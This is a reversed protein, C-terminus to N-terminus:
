INSKRDQWAQELRWLLSMHHAFRPCASRFKHGMRAWEQRADKNIIFEWPLGILSDILEDETQVPELAVAAQPGELIDKEPLQTPLQPLYNPTDGDYDVVGSAQVIFRYLSHQESTQAVAAQPGRLIDKEPLQAPLQPLYDPRDEDHSAM